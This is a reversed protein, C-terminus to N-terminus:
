NLVLILRIGIECCSDILLVAMGNTLGAYILQYLMQRTVDQSFTAHKIGCKLEHLVQACTHSHFLETAMSSVLLDAPTVSSNFRLFGNCVPLSACLSTFGPCVYGSTWFLPILPGM